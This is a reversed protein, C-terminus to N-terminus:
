PCVFKPRNVGSINKLDLKGLKIKISIKDMIEEPAPICELCSHAPDKCIKKFVEDWNEGTYLSEIWFDKLEKDMLTMEFDPNPIMNFHNQLTGLYGQHESFPSTTYLSPPNWWYIIIFVAIAGGARIIKPVNVELFGPIFTAVGAAAVALIVRFIYFQFVTPNPFFIAILLLILFFAIGFIFAAWKEARKSNSINNENM